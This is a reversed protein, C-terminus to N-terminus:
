HPAATSSPKVGTLGALQSLKLVLEPLRDQSVQDGPLHGPLADMFRRVALLATFQGSLYAKLEEGVQLCEEPLSERGDVVSVIDGLDHSFLYDGGGRGHFAELKSALFVPADIVKILAASPLEVTQATAVAVRYWRNSFGLIEEHTPMVDVTVGDVRWRCMPAGRRVDQTFGRERLTLELAHYDTWAAVEAVLDVDETPRIAPMAPDTILLGLVAGGVFVLASCLDPQLRRAVLELMVVNPDNPNLTKKM